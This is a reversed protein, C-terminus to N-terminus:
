ESDGEIAKKSLYSIKNIEPLCVLADLGSYEFTYAKGIDKCRISIFAAKLDHKISEETFRDTEDSTFIPDPEQGTIGSRAWVNIEHDGYTILFTPTDPSNEPNEYQRVKAGAAVLVQALANIGPHLGAMPITKEEATDTDPDPDFEQNSILHGQLWLFGEIADGKQPRYGKLVSESAYIYGDFPFDNPITLTARIRYFGLGEAEFYGVEEAITRFESDDEVKDRPMLYRMEAISIEVSNVDSVDANPNQELLRQREFEIAPGESVVITNQTAKQLTYAVGAVTFDYAKGPKYIHRNKYYDPDFFAVSAGGRCTGNIIGEIPNCWPEVKNIRIRNIVGDACYPYASFVYNSQKRKSSDSAVLVLYHLPTAPFAIATVKETLTRGDETTHEFPSEGLIEGNAIVAPIIRPLLAEIDNEVTEWHNGHGM